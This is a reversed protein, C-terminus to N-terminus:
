SLRGASRSKSAARSLWRLSRTPTPPASSATSAHSETAACARGRSCPGAPSSPSTRAPIGKSGGRAPILGLVTMLLHDRKQGDGRGDVPRRRDPAGRQRRRLDARFRLPRARAPARGCRRIGAADNPVDIVNPRARRGTQRTGINVAPTGIFAGERIASSSNGVLVGNARAAPHLRGDPPEQLLADQRGPRARSIQPHRTRRGRLRRGCEALARDGAAGLERVAALTQSIQEEGQGYETTVPHQSVLSPSTSTSRNASVRQSCDGRCTATQRRRSTRCRPRDSPLRRSARDGATRGDERHAGGRRRVRPFPHARVEDGRPPHERRHQRLGRRGDHPRAPHEHLGRRARYGDDRVPRRRHDRHRAQLREFVTPLEILGLGTSKAM